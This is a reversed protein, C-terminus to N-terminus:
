TRLQAAIEEDIKQKLELYNMAHGAALSVIDDHESKWKTGGGPLTVIKVRVKGFSTIVERSERPLMRKEVSQIRVGITTSSAFLTQTITDLADERILVSVKTAPRSKKMVVPTLFVDNAGDALLSDILPQFAEPSMDDINCEVLLNTALEYDASRQVTGTEGLMVRLVNPIEFDKYGIGYGIRESVFDEPPGFRDVTCKLIAAGTPTTAEQDIRGYHCPVDRLLEATAPAPVPLLGHECRVMGGGVEVTNALVSEVHLYDLCIAAGVIDVISDTAGVEHFHIEDISTGHIKAEATGIARFIDIAKAEIGPAFEASGIIAEIDALHRVARKHEPSLNVSARTGTIGMKSGSELSLTFEHALSLKALQEGLYEGPVGVDVLAGMNMDGSIGSFCDYYLARQMKVVGSPGNPVARGVAQRVAGPRPM